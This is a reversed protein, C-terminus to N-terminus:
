LRLCRVLYLYGRVTYSHGLSALRLSSCHRVQAAQTTVTATSPSDHVQRVTSPPTVTSGGTVALIDCLGVDQWQPRHDTQNISELSSNSPTESASAKTPFLMGLAALLIFILRRFPM